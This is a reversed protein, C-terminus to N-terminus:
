LAGITIEVGLHNVPQFEKKVQQVQVEETYEDYAALPGLDNILNNRNALPM